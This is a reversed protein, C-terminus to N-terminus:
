SLSIKELSKKSSRIWTGLNKSENLDAFNLLHLPQDHKNALKLSRVNLFRGTKKLIEEAQEFSLESFCQIEPTKKPDESCVGSVDKFFEVREAKLSVGLAVATTDSGGKGLTTIEGKLSVGQFGAVIVVVQSNLDHLVRRPKIELINASMHEDCTLIGAQSGTLSKAKIGKRDLAMALLSMSMREGTSILMDVERKPPEPNVAKSLDLLQTTLSGMASVVVVVQSFEQKRRAIWLAAQEFGKVNELCKGGFKLVILKEEMM